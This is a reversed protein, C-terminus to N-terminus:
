VAMNPPFEWGYGLMNSKSIEPLINGFDVVMYGVLLPSKRALYLNEMSFIGAMIHVNRYQGTFAITVTCM